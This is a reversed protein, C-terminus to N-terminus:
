KSLHPKRSHWYNGWEIIGEFIPNVAEAEIVLPDYHGVIIQGQTIPNYFVKGKVSLKNLKPEGPWKHRLDNSWLDDLHIAAADIAPLMSPKIELTIGENKGLRAGLVPTWSILEDLTDTLKSLELARLYWGKVEVKYGQWLFPNELIAKVTCVGM